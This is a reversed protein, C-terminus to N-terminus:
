MSNIELMYPSDDWSYGYFFAIDCVTHGTQV